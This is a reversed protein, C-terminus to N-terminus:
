AAPNKSILVSELCYVTKKTDECVTGDQCQWCLKDLDPRDVELTGRAENITYLLRLYKSEVIPPMEFKGELEFWEYVGFTGKKAVCQKCAVVLNDPINPGGRSPHILQDVTLNEASGCYLCQHPKLVKLIFTRIADDWVVDGSKLKKYYQTATADRKGNKNAPGATLLAFQWYLLDRITKLSNPAM